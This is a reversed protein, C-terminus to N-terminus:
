LVTPKPLNHVSEFNTEGNEWFKHKDQSRCGTHCGFLLMQRNEGYACFHKQKSAQLIPIGEECVKQKYSNYILFYFLYKLSFTKYSFFYFAQVWWGIEVIYKM